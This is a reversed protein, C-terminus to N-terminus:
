ARVRMAWVVVGLVVVLAVGAYVGVHAAGHAAEAVPAHAGHAVAMGPLGAALVAIKKM